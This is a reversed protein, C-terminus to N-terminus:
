RLRLALLSSVLQSAFIGIEDILVKKCLYHYTRVSVYATKGVDEHHGSLRSPQQEAEQRGQAVCRSRVRVENSM